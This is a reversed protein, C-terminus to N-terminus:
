NVSEDLNCLEEHHEIRNENLFKVSIEALSQLYDILVKMEKKSIGLDNLYKECSEHKM